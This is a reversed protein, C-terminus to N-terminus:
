ARRAKSAGATAPVQCAQIAELINDRSFMRRRGVWTCTFRGDRCGQELFWSTVAGPTDGSMLEAARDATFLQLESLEEVVATM